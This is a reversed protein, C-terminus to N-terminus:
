ARRPTRGTFALWWLGLALLEPLGASGSGGSGDNATVDFSISTLNNAPEPDTMDSSISAVVTASGEAEAYLTVSAKGSSGAGMRPITCSLGDAVPSCLESGVVTLSPPLTVSIQVNHAEGPGADTLTIDLAFKRKTRVRPDAVSLSVGLDAGLPVVDILVTDPASQLSGDDVVLTAQYLGTVDATFSPTEAQPDSLVARSGAPVSLTWVCTLAADEPDSSRRGDLTVRTGVEVTRDPGAEAVPPDDSEAIAEAAAPSSDLQGDNVVLVLRYTGEVDAVFSPALAAPDDLLASSGPPVEMTWRYSLADDEPDHSGSGDLEVLDGVYMSAPGAIVAVPPENRMAIAKAFMARDAGTSSDQEGWVAYVVNGAPTPRLQSEYRSNEGRGPVIVVPEFSAAKDTTRTFYIELDRAGGIHDYVNTETGWAAVLTNKDQCDEPDDPNARDACGPGSGPM